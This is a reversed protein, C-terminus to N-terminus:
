RKTGRGLGKVNQQAQYALTITDRYTNGLGLSFPLNVQRSVTKNVVGFTQLATVFDVNKLRVTFKLPKINKAAVPYKGALKISGFATTGVGKADLTFTQSLYHASTPDGLGVTVVMGDPTFGPLVPVTGAGAFTNNAPKTFNVALTAQMLKLVAEPLVMVSLRQETSTTGDRLTVTV